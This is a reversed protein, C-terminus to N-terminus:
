RDAPLRRSDSQRGARQRAQGVRQHRGSGHARSVRGARSGTRSFGAVMAVSFIRLSAESAGVGSADGGQDRALPPLLRLRGPTRSRDTTASIAFTNNIGAIAPEAEGRLFQLSALAVTASEANPVIELARQYQAIAEDQRQLVELSRGALFHALYKLATDRALPQASEFTRCRRRTISSAHRPDPRHSDM